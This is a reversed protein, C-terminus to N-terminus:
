RINEKEEVFRIKQAEEAMKMKEDDDMDNNNKLELPNNLEKKFGLDIENMQALAEKEEEIACDIENDIEEEMRRLEINIENYIHMYDIEDTTVIMTSNNDFCLLIRYIDQDDIILQYNDAFVLNTFLLIIQGALSFPIVTLSIEMNEDQIEKTFWSEYLKKTVQFSAYESKPFDIIVAACGGSVCLSTTANRLFAERVKESKNGTIKDIALTVASRPDGEQNKGSSLRFLDSLQIEVTINEKKMDIYLHLSFVQM